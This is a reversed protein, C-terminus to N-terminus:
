ELWELQLGAYDEGDYEAVREDVARFREAPELLELRQTQAPVLFSEQGVGPFM